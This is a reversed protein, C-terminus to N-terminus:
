MFKRRKFAEVDQRSLSFWEGKPNKAAFRRHWYNEIGHADDTKIEHVLELDSPLQLSIQDTRREVLVAKGIKYHKERGLKLLAMYLYGDKVGSTSQEGARDSCAVGGNEAAKKAVPALLDCLDEYGVRSMCHELLRAALKQKHGLRGFTAQSPFAADNRARMRIEAAVPFRGLDRILGIFKEILFDEEYATQLQNPVFGAETVADSWRVWLKGSWATEKYGSEESFKAKGPPVGGNAQAIRRIEDLIRQKLDLLDTTKGSM